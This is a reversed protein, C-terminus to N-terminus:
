RTVTEEHGHCIKKEPSISWPLVDHSAQPRARACGLPCRNEKDFVRRRRSTSRGHHSRGELRDASITSRCSAGISNAQNAQILPPYLVRTYIYEDCLLEAPLFSCVEGPNWAVLDCLLKNTQRLLLPPGLVPPGRPM